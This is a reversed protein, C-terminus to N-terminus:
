GTQVALGSSHSKSVFFHRGMRGMRSLASGLRRERVSHNPYYRHLREGMMILSQVLSRDMKENEILDALQGPACRKRKWTVVSTRTANKQIRSVTM